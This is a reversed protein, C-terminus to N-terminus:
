FRDPVAIKCFFKLVISNRGPGEQPPIIPEILTWQEDTLDTLYGM